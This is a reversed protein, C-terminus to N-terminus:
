LEFANNNVMFVSNVLFLKGNEWFSRFLTNDVLYIFSGSGMPEEGFVLTQDLAKVANQGAFGSYVKTDNLYAVNYGNELLDYATSGLKLTFYHDDYGFAMPHTNDVKANFIAGTILNNSYDRERDAYATLNAKKEEDDKSEKYKLSFGDKGAFSRLAGDIAIVKGGSRVWDKLKNLNDENLVKGYYGNPLILVNYKNLNTKSLDNTNISTLPYQLQQEFFHWVEGYSLSSTGEGSLVAVKQKNMLKIDPSGIDPTTQSFGSQIESLAQAHEQALTNLKDVFNKIHKNDGKTIIISGREFKTNNSTFPKETFRVRFDNKLLEALFKADKMSNWKSVYGYADNLVQLASKGLLKASPIKSTSAVAELGYAYPLSWATIDYTLSDSLKANPEFMVKIMKGKPQNSHVVLAEGDVNMHSQKGTKYNYGSVKSNTANEFEIHHKNLLTKLSNLKDTSGKLVYSKYTLDSNKFFKGFETNLKEANKSAIEVTSLGTTTHHTLRELLTLVHGEDNLIGLGARGHGAQEYTMGIAGMYTPYTDGYSPYFLDFRERTFFLWGEKDFYKAHNKGIATQFERQWDTIIEHFPEAAPAFYYPENIGQEHFDVHVHPMWKNYVELRQQTEVQSAWLWDRNLDFLYHNPRGSPWPENHESAQRDIDHPQSATENYWNVYRDRGDPNMSPDIIVVTNELLDQKETLLKYLTLMSAESSSAENGHVNYSMWVIAIDSASPNGEILGANKLNNQRITELNEINAESSVYALYLPRRENTTGYQELKVQKPVKAQVAKFYDIIQHNRSFQSGIKYGLIDDPSPINQAISSVQFSFVVLLTIVLKQM